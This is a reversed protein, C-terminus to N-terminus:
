ICTIEITTKIILIRIIVVKTTVERRPRSSRRVCDVKSSYIHAATADFPSFAFGSFASAQFRALRFLRLGSFASVQFPALRFLRFDHFPLPRFLYPGLFQWFSLPRFLCLGSFASTNNYRYDIEYPQSWSLAGSM